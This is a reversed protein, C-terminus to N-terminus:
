KRDMAKIIADPRKKEESKIKRKIQQTTWKHEFWLELLELNYGFKVIGQYLKLVDEKRWWRKYNIPRTKQPKYEDSKENRNGVEIEDLFDTIPSTVLSVKNNEQIQDNDVNKSRIRKNGINTTLYERFTKNM